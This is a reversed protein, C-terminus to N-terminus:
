TTEMAPAANAPQYKAFLIIFSFTVSADNLRNVKRRPSTRLARKAGSPSVM